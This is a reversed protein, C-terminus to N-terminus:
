IASSLSAAACNTGCSYLSRQIHAQPSTFWLSSSFAGGATGLVPGLVCQKFVFFLQFFVEFGIVLSFSFLGLGGADGCFLFRCLFFGGGFSGGAFRCLFLGGSLFGGAFLPEM